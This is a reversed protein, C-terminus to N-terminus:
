KRGSMFMALRSWDKNVKTVSASPTDVKQSNKIGFDRLVEVLGDYALNNGMWMNSLLEAKTSREILNVAKYFIGIESM